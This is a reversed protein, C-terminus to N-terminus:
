LTSGSNPDVRFSKYPNETLSRPWSAFKPDVRHIKGQLLVASGGCDSLGGAAAPPVLREVAARLAVLSHAPQAELWALVDSSLAEHHGLQQGHSAGANSTNRLWM